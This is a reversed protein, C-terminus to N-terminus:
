TERSGYNVRSADQSLDHGKGTFLLANTSLTDNSATVEQNKIENEKM